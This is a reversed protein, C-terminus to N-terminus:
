KILISRIYENVIEVLNKSKENFTETINFM